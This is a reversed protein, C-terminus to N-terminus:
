LKSLSSLFTLYSRFTSNSQYSKNSPLPQLCHSQCNSIPFRQNQTLFSLNGVKEFTAVKQPPLHCGKTKLASDLTAGLRRSYPGPSCNILLSAPCSFRLPGRSNLPGGITAGQSYQSPFSTAIALDQPLAPAHAPITNPKIKM